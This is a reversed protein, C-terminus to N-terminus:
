QAQELAHEVARSLAAASLAGTGDCRPCANATTKLREIYRELWDMQWSMNERGRRWTRKVGYAAEYADDEAASAAECDLYSLISKLAHLDEIIDSM